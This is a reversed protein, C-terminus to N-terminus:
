FRYILHLLIVKDNKNVSCLIGKVERNLKCLRDKNNSTDNEHNRNHQRLLSSLLLSAKFHKGNMGWTM